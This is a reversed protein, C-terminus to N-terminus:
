FLGKVQMSIVSYSPSTYIVDGSLLGFASLGTFNTLDSGIVAVPTDLVDQMSSLIYDTDAIPAEIRMELDTAKTRSSVNAIGTIPDTLVYSYTTPKATAGYVVGGTNDTTILQRMDGIAIIGCKIAVGTGATISITVEPDEYPLIGNFFSKTTTKIRGFYYDYHDIPLSTLDVTQTYFITGGPADKISISIATGDMGYLAIANFLGPRLVMTLPTIVSTQSNSRPDLTAWRNTARTNKWRPSTGTLALHPSTADVGATQCTYVRHTSALIVEAGVTYSTAANWATEGAAPESATSSTLMADTITVPVLVYPASM